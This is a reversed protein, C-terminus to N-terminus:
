ARFILSFVREWERQFVQWWLFSLFVLHKSKLKQIISNVYVGIKGFQWTGFTNKPIVTFQIDSQPFSLFYKGCIGSRLYLWISLFNRIMTSYTVGRWCYDKSMEVILHSQFHLYGVSKTFTFRECWSPSM